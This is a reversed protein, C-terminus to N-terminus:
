EFQMLIARHVATRMMVMEETVAILARMKGIAVDGLQAM